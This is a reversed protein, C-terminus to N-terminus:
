SNKIGYLYFSSGSVFNGAGVLGVTISSIATTDRYLSALAEMQFNATDNMEPADIVSFAKNQAALYSPLYVETSGFTSATSSAAVTLSGTASTDNSVRSSYPTSAGQGVATYSYKTTSDSNFRFYVEQLWSAKDSRTSMRIVLDTFTGPIATFTYSAASSALTEGKILTYTSPM